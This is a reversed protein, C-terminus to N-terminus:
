PSGLESGISLWNEIRTKYFKRESNTPDHFKSISTSSESLPPGLEIVSLQPLICIQKEFRFNLVKHSFFLSPSALIIKM